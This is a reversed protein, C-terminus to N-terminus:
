TKILPYITVYKNLISQASSLQSNTGADSQNGITTSSMSHTHNWVPTNTDVPSADALVTAGTASATGSGANHSHTNMTHTHALNITKQGGTEGLADFSADSSKYGFIVKGKINPVNFTTSGDGTGFVTGIVAFLSAYTVRSVAAGDCPLYGAPTEIKSHMIVMGTKM